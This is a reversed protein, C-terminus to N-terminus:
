TNLLVVVGAVAYLVLGALTVRVQGLLAGAVAVEIAIV